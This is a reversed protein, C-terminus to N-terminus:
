SVVYYLYLLEIHDFKPENADEVEKQDFSRVRLHSLVLRGKVSCACDASRSIGLRCSIAKRTKARM